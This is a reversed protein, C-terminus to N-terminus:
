LEMMEVMMGVMMGVSCDVKKVELWVVKKGAWHFVMWAVKSAAMLHVRLDVLKGVMKMAMM